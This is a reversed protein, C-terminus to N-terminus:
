QIVLRFFQTNVFASPLALIHVFGFRSIHKTSLNFFHIAQTLFAHKQGCRQRAAPLHLSHPSVRHRLFNEPLPHHHSARFQELFRSRHPL